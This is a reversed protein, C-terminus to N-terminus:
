SNARSWDMGGARAPVPGPPPEPEGPRTPLRPAMYAPVEDGKPQAAAVPDATPPPPPVARMEAENFELQATENGKRLVVTSKGVVDSWHVSKVSVQTNEDAEHAILSFQTSLDRSKITVFDADGIRGIGSIFWDAAFSAQPAPSAGPATAVAFPSKVRLTEYRSKPLAEPTGAPPMEGLGRLLLLGGIGLAVAPFHISFLSRRLHM